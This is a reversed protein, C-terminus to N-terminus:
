ESAHNKDLQKVLYGLKINGALFYFLDELNNLAAMADTKETTQIKYIVNKIVEHEQVFLGVLENLKEETIVTPIQISRISM